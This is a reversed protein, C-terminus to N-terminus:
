TQQPVYRKLNGLVFKRRYVAGAESGSERTMDDRVGGLSPRAADLM